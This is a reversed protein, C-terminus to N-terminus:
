RSMNDLSVRKSWNHGYKKMETNYKDVYVRLMKIRNDKKIQEEVQKVKLYSGNEKVMINSYTIFMDKYLLRIREHPIYIKDTTGTTKNYVQHETLNQLSGPTKVM